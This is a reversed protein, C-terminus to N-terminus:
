YRKRKERFEAVAAESVYWPSGGSDRREARLDKQYILRKLSSRSLHLVNELESLTYMRGGLPEPQPNPTLEGADVDFTRHCHPCEVSVENTSETTM